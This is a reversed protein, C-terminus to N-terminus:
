RSAYAGHASANADSFGSEICERVISAARLVDPLKVDLHTCARLRLPGSPNIRVGRQALKASLQASTGLEPEVEFFVLNSEVDAVNLRVGDIEAIAEAFAKANDNDEQLREIHNELAYIAAAAMMGAQRLAGGFLKRARRARYITAADGVLISGM